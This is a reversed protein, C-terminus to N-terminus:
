PLVGLEGLGMQTLKCGSSHQFPCRLEAESGQVARSRSTEQRGLTRSGQEGGRADARVGCQTGHCWGRLQLDAPGQWGPRGGALGRGGSVGLGVVLTASM